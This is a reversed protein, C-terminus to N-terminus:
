GPSFPLRMQGTPLGQLSGDDHPVHGRRPLRSSNGDRHHGRQASGTTATREAMWFM